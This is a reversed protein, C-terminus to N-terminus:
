LSLYTWAIRACAMRIEGETEEDMVLTGCNAHRALQNLNSAMHSEGLLGLVQSLAEHDKVPVRQHRKRPAAAEGFLQNRVYASVSIGGAMDKLQVDEEETLRLTIRPSVGKSSRSLEQCVARFDRRASPPSPCVAATM